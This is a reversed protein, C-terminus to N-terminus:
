IIVFITPKKNIDIATKRWDAITKTAIYENNLTIHSAICLKTTPQLLQLMEAFLNQNRYPTEMFIQTQGFRKASQEAHLLFSKRQEKIPVYGHFAFNQGNGGSAILAMVISNPGILPVVQLGLEHAKNVVLAGPDAICPMGAESMIGISYGNLAPQLLDSINIEKAHKDLESFHLNDIVIYPLMRKLSRRESRINEVIFYSLTNIIEANVPPFLRTSEQEGMECPILYIKGYKKSQAM